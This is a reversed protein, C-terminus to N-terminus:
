IESITVGSPKLAKVEDWTMGNPFVANNVAKQSLTLTVGSAASYFHTVTDYISEGDLNECDSMDLNQGIEGGWRVHVLNRDFTFWNTFLQDKNVTIKQIKRLMGCNNFVYLSGSTIVIETLIEEIYGNARFMSNGGNTGYIGGASSALGTGLIPYKAKLVPFPYADYAFFYPYFIRNGYNQIIDWNHDIGASYVEDIKSEFQSPAILDQNGLFFRIEDAIPKTLESLLSM